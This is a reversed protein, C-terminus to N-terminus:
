SRWRAIMRLWPGSHFAGMMLYMPVMGSVLPGHEVGMCLPAMGGGPHATILAMTAFAAAREGGSGGASRASYAESV